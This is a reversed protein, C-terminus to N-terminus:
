RPRRSRRHRPARAPKEPEAAPAMQSALSQSTPSPAQWLPRFEALIQDAAVLSARASPHGDFSSVVIDKMQTFSSLFPQRLDVCHIQEEECVTKVRDHLYDFQYNNLLVEPNPFMVLGVPVGAERARIVFQRLMGLGAKSEPSSPDKLYRHMYHYYTELLGLKEQIGPWQASLMTYVASSQLLWEDLGRWPLLPRARPREMEGIEFDNTYLQLLIFDAGISLAQELAELHEPLNHGPIGFNVIEYSSGLFRKLQSSYRESEPLGAGWTISDGIIVIRYRPGKAAVDADRFGLNNLHIPENRGAFFTRADGSSRVTRFAIRALGEAVLLAVVLSVVPLLLRFMARPSFWDFLNWGRARREEWRGRATGVFERGRAQWASIVIVVFAVAAAILFLPDLVRVANARWISTRKTWLAWAPVPSMTAGERGWSWTMAYLGGAQSYDVLILHSGRGLQIRGTKTVLGHDGTNDVVREGDIAVASGDDSETAFNYVGPQTVVLFGTWRARFTEPPANNWARTIAATSADRDVGTRGTQGTAPNTVYESRLGADWKLATRAVTVAAFAVLAALVVSRKM